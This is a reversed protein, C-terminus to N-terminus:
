AAFFRQLGGADRMNERDQPQRQVLIQELPESVLDHLDVIHVVLVQQLGEWVADLEDLIPEICSATHKHVPSHSRQSMM